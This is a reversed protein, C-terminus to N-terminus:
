KHREHVTVSAADRLQDILSPRSRSVASVIRSVDRDADDASLGFEDVLTRKATTRDVTGYCDVTRAIVLGTPALSLFAAEDAQYEMIEATASLPAHGDRNMVDTFVGLSCGSLIGGLQESPTPARKGDLVEIIAPGLRAIAFKRRALYHGAFHALEHAIAFRMLAPEDDDLFIMGCGCHAILCGRLRRTPLNRFSRNTVAGVAREVDTNTLSPTVTISVPMTLPSIAALNRPFGPDFFEVGATMRAAVAAADFFIM